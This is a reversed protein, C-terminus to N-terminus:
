EFGRQHASARMRSALDLKARAAAAAPENGEPEQTLYIRLYREAREPERGLTLLQEAARYYPVLDDPVAQAAASLTEELASWNGQRAYIAALAAYAGARGPELKQASRALVEAASDNRHAQELYYEVLAMIAKYSAPRVDAADRLMAEAQSSNKRFEEVRAKALFGEVADIADIREATQAAKAMDGGLIGPALLYYEVLDRLAQPDRPDLDVAADLEKRFRRALLAQQFIGAHQATVGLVEALQRHYRAVNGDLRVAKEALPLPASRDGFANRIQSSLFLANADDPKVQLREDVLARARKWHGAEILGEAAPQQASLAM